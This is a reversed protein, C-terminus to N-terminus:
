KSLNPVILEAFSITSIMRPSSSCFSIFHIRHKEPCTSPSYYFSLPQLFFSSQLEPGYYLLACSRFLCPACVLLLESLSPFLIM